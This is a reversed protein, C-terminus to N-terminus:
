LIAQYLSFLIGFTAIVYPQQEDLLFAAIWWTVVMIYLWKQCEPLLWLTPDDTGTTTLLYNHSSFLVHKSTALMTTVQHITAKKHLTNNFHCVTLEKIDSRYNLCELLIVLQYITCIERVYCPVFLNHSSIFLFKHYGTSKNHM